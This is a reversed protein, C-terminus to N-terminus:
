RVSLREEEVEDVGADVDGAPEEEPEVDLEPPEEDEPEPPEEDEPALLEM